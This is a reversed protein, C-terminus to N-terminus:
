LCTNQQSVAGGQDMSRHMDEVHHVDCGDPGWLSGGGVPLRAPAASTMGRGGPGSSRPPPRLLPDPADQRAAEKTTFCIRELHFVLHAISLFSHTVDASPAPLFVSPLSSVDREPILTNLRPCINGRLLSALTILRVGPSYLWMLSLVPGAESLPLGTTGVGAQRTGPADPNHRQGTSGRAGELAVKPLLGNLFSPFLCTSM